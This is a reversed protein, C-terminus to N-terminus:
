WRSRERAECAAVVGETGDLGATAWPTWPDLARNGAVVLPVGVRLACIVGRELPTPRPWPRARVVVVGDLSDDVPCGAETLANCPFSGAGPAFCSVVQHGAAELSARVTDGAHPDTEVVLLRM